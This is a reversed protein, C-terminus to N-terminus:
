DSSQQRDGGKIAIGTRQHCEGVDVSRTEPYDTLHGSQTM